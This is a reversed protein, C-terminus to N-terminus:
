QVRKPHQSKEWYDLISKFTECLNIFNSPKIFFGQAPLDYAYQIQKESADTSWFIFPVSKYKLGKNEAIRKKIDFGTEGPLNVDSLILFPSQSSSQLYTILANGTRFYHIPRDLKFFTWAAEIMELDDVDDDVILIPNLEVCNKQFVLCNNKTKDEKTETPQMGMATSIFNAFARNHM